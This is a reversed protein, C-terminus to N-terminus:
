DDTKRTYHVSSVARLEAAKADPDSENTMSGGGAEPGALYKMTDPSRLPPQFNIHFPFFSYDQGDTPAQHITMIYPMPQQWLNDLRICVERYICGLHFCAEPSLAALSAVPERPFVYVEYAYRAFWPICAVFSENQCIVRGGQTERQLIEPGLHHGTAQHWKRAQEVHKITHGYIMNGAYIQCHPHPNSTGVLSGKNEFILVHDVDPRKGLEVTRERWLQVVAASEDDTLQAFTKGHDPHYCVVEATGLAAKSAYLDDGEPVDARDGFCPLDNTFWYVGDYADNRNGHLRENGPCLACDPDYSPLRESSGAHKDGIWPRGGRHSTFLVWEGRLPNWRQEWVAKTGKSKSEQKQM